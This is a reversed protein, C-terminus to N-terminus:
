NFFSTNISVCLFCIHYYNLLCYCMCPAEVYTLETSGFYIYFLFFFSLLMQGFSYVKMDGSKLVYSMADKFVKKITGVATNEIMSCCFM